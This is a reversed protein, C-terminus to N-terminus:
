FADCLVQAAGLSRRAAEKQLKERIVALVEPALSTQAARQQSWWSRQRGCLRSAEAASLGLANRAAELREWLAPAPPAIPRLAVGICNSVTGM